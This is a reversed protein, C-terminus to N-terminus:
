NQKENNEEYFGGSAKIRQNEKQWKSFGDTTNNVDKSEIQIPKNVTGLDLCIPFDKNFLAIIREDLINRLFLRSTKTDFICVCSFNDKVILQYRGVEELNCSKVALFCGAFIVFIFLSIVVIQFDRLFFPIKQIPNDSM